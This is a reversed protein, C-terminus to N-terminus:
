MAKCFGILVSSMALLWLGYDGRLWPIRGCSSRFFYCFSLLVLFRIAFSDLIALSCSFGPHYVIWYGTSAIALCCFTCDLVALGLLWIAIMNWDDTWDMKGKGCDLEAPWWGGWNWCLRVLGSVIRSGVAVGNCNSLLRAPSYLVLVGRQCAQWRIAGPICWWWYFHIRRCDPCTPNCYRLLGKSALGILQRGPRTCELALRAIRTVWDTRLGLPLIPPLIYSSSFSPVTM